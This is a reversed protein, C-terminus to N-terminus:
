VNQLIGEINKQLLDRAGEEGLARLEDPYIPRSFKTEITAGPMPFLHDKIKICKSVSQSLAVVPRDSQMALWVMSKRVKRYPGGSDTAMGYSRDPNSRLFDAIQERRSVNSKLKFRFLKTKNSFFTPVSIYSHFGHYGIWGPGDPRNSDLGKNFSCLYLERHFVFLLSGQPISSLDIPMRKIFLSVFKIYILLVIGLPLACLLIIWNYDRYPVGEPSKKM